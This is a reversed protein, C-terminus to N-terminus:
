GLFLVFENTQMSEAFICFPVESDVVRVAFLGFCSILKGIAIEFVDMTASQKSYFASGGLVLIVGDFIGCEFQALHNTRTVSVSLVKISIFGRPRRSM